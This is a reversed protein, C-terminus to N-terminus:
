WLVTKCRPISYSHIRQHEDRSVVQLKEVEADLISQFDEGERNVCKKNRMYIDKKSEGLAIGNSPYVKIM